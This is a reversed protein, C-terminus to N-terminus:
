IDTILRECCDLLIDRVCLTIKGRNRELNSLLLTANIHKKIQHGAKKASITYIDKYEHSFLDFFDCDFAKAIKKASGLLTDSCRAKKEILRITNISVKSRKALEMQTIGSQERLLKINNYNVPGNLSEKKNTLGRVFAQIIDERQDLLAVCLFFDADAVGLSFMLELNPITENTKIDNAYDQLCYMEYNPLSMFDRLPDVSESVPKELLRLQKKIFDLRESNNLFARAQKGQIYFAEMHPNFDPKTRKRDSFDFIRNVTTNLAKAIRNLMMGGIDAANELTSIYTKNVNLIRALDNQSLKQSRRIEAINNNM